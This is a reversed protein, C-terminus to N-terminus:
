PLSPARPLVGELFRLLVPAANGGRWAVALPMTAEADALPLFSVGPLRVAQLSAPVVALGIGAAVLSLLSSLQQAEQRIRPQSGTKGALRAFIDHVTSSLRRPQAVFAEGAVERFRVRARGALRHTSAVALLLPERDLLEFRVRRRTPADKPPARVFGVDIVDEVLAAFQQETFMEHLELQVEPYARTFRLVAEPLTPHFAVSGPYALRLRGIQGAAAREATRRAIDAQQLTKRAEVLFARGAESLAVRRRNRDFLRVGLTSELARIQQSLPPQSIHLQQAARTFSLTDAVTVFYRLQRLDLM